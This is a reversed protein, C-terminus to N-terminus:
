TDERRRRILHLMDSTAQENVEDEYIPMAPGPTPSPRAGVVRRPPPEVTPPTSAPPALANPPRWTVTTEPFTGVLAKLEARHADLYEREDTSLHPFAKAPWVALRNNRKLLEIGKGLLYETFSEPTWASM